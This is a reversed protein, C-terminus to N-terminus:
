VFIKILIIQRDVKTHEVFRHQLKYHCVRVAKFRQFVSIGLKFEARSVIHRQEIISDHTPLRRQNCPGRIFLYYSRYKINLLVFSVFALVFNLEFLLHPYFYSNLFFNITVDRTLISHSTTVCRSTQSYGGSLWAGWTCSVTKNVHSTM